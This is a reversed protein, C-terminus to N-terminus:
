ALDHWLRDGYPFSVYRGAHAAGRRGVGLSARAFKNAARASCIGGKSLTREVRCNPPVVKLVAPM